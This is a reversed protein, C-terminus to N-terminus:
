IYSRRHVSVCQEPESIVQTKIVVGDKTLGAIALQQRAEIDFVGSIPTGISKAKFTNTIM